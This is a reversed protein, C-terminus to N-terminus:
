RASQRLNNRNNNRNRRLNFTSRHSILHNTIFESSSLISNTLLLAYIFTITILFLSLLPSFLQKFNIRFYWCTSLVVALLPLLLSNLSFRVGNTTASGGEVQSQAHEAASAATTSADTTDNAGNNENVTVSNNNNTNNNNATENSNSSSSAAAVHSSPSAATDVSELQRSSSGSSSNVRTANAESTENPKNVDGCKRTTIICHITTQDKINYYDITNSDNLFQGQYIFRVIKNISLEHEFHAKKISFITDNPKVKVRLEREDVFKILINIKADDDDGNEDIKPQLELDGIDIAREEFHEEQNNFENNQITSSGTTSSENAAANDSTTGSSSSSTANNNSNSSNRNLMNDLLAYEVIESILESENAPQRSASDARSASGNGFSLGAANILRVRSGNTSRDNLENSNLFELDTVENIAITSMDIRHVIFASGTFPFERLSTSLWSIIVVIVIFLIVLINIVDDGMAGEELAM